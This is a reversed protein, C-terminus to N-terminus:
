VYRKHTWSRSGRNPAAGELFGNCVREFCSIALENDARFPVAHLFTLLCRVRHKIEVVATASEWPRDRIDRTKNEDQLLVMSAAQSVNGDCAALARRAAIESIGLQILYSVGAVSSGNPEMIVVAEVGGLSNSFRNFNPPTLCVSSLSSRHDVLRNNCM